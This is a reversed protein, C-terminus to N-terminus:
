CGCYNILVHSRQQEQLKAGQGVLLTDSGHSTGILDLDGDGDVDASAQLERLYLEPSPIHTLSSDAEVRYLLSLTGGFDGCDATDSSVLILEEVSSRLSQISPTSDWVSDWKGKGGQKLFDKQIAQWQASERFSTKALRRLAKKTRVLRGVAPAPLSADRAWLASGCLGRTPEVRAVLQFLGPEFQRYVSEGDSGEEFSKQLLEFGVVKASCAYGKASYLDLERGRWEELEASTHEEALPQTLTFEFDDGRVRKKGKGWTPDPSSDLVVYSRKRGQMVLRAEAGEPLPEDPVVSQAGTAPAVHIAVPMPMPVPGAGGQSPESEYNAQTLHLNIYQPGYSMLYGGVFGGIGAVTIAFLISPLRQGLNWQVEPWLTKNSKESASKMGVEM